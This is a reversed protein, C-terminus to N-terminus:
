RWESLDFENMASMEIRLRPFSDLEKSSLTELNKTNDTIFYISGDAVINSETFAQRLTTEIEEKNIDDSIYLVRSTFGIHSEPNSAYEEFTTSDSFLGNLNGSGISYKLFM